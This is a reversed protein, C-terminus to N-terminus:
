KDLLMRQREVMYALTYSELVSSITDQLEKWIEYTVCDEVRNCVEPHDVCNVLFTSGELAEIINRLTINQPNKRLMYGGGAGRVSTILDAAKLRPILQEMYKDSVEQRKALDKLSVPGKDYNLAIDIMARAGYRGKTSLRM